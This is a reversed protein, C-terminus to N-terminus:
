WLRVEPYPNYVALMLADGEDPSRLLRAKTKEKVELKIQGKSSYTYKPATLSAIIGRDNPIAGGKRLWDALMWWGEARKNMFREDDLAAEAVNVGSVIEGYGLELLRDVVGGGVGIDDVNVRRPNFARIAEVVLGAVEMTDRKYHREPAFAVKGQVVQIVTADDGFRAVDVGIDVPADEDIVATQSRAAAKEALYLSILVDEADLPFQGLVRSMWAPSGEGWERRRGEVWKRTALGPIINRGTLYNPTELASIHMTAWERSRFANYFPGSPRLPNGILLVKSGESSCLGEIAEMMEETLASAEDVVVYVGHPTRFGAFNEAEKPSVAFAGWQPRIKWELDNLVGLQALDRNRAGAILRHIEPWLIKSLGTWSAGTTVVYGLPRGLLYWPVTGAALYSKGCANASAIAVRDHDRIMELAEAQRWWVDRGLERVFFPRPHANITKHARRFKQIVSSSLAPDRERLKNPQRRRPM